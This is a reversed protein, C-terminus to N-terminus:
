MLLSYYFFICSYKRKDCTKGSFGKKCKCKFDNVLDTCTGGNDCPNPSCDDIDLLFLYPYFQFWNTSM